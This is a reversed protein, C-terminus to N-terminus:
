DCGQESLRVSEPTVGPQKLVQVAGSRVPETATVAVVRTAGAPLELPLTFVTLGKETGPAVIAPRGDM